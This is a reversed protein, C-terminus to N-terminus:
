PIEYILEGQSTYKAFEDICRCDGTCRARGSGESVTKCYCSNNVVDREYEISHFFRKPPVTGYPNVGVHGGLPDGSILAFGIANGCVPTGGGGNYCTTTQLGDDDRAEFLMISGKQFKFKGTMEVFAQRTNGSSATPVTVFKYKKGSKGFGYRQGYPVTNQLVMRDSKSVFYGTRILPPDVIRAKIQYGNACYYTEAIPENLNDYIVRGTDTRVPDGFRATAISILFLFLFTATIQQIKM